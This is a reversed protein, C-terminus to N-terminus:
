AEADLDSLGVFELDSLAMKATSLDNKSIACAAEYLACLVYADGAKEAKEAQNKLCMILKTLIVGCDIESIKM